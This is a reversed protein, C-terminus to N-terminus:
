GQMYARTVCTNHQGLKTQGHSLVNSFMNFNHAAVNPTWSCTALVTFETKSWSRQWTSLTSFNTLVTFKTNPFLLQAMYYHYFHPYLQILYQKPRNICSDKINNCYFVTQLVQDQPVNCATSPDGSSHVCHKHFPFDALLVPKKQM